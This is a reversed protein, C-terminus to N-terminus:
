EIEILPVGAQVAEGATCHIAKITGKQSAAIPIVMKMSELLILKQGSQVADGVNVLIQSVVAPIAASLSGSAAASGARQRVRTATHYRGNVWLQREDKKAHGVLRVQQQTGDPKHWLLILDNGQQKLLTFNLSVTTEGELIVELQDGQQIVEVERTEDGIALKFNSM